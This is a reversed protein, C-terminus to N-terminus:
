KVGSIGAQTLAQVIGPPIQGGSKMAQEVVKALAGAGATTYGIMRPSSPLFSSANAGHAWREFQGAVVTKRLEELAAEAAKGLKEGPNLVEDVRGSRMARAVKLATQSPTKGVVENSLQDFAKAGDAYAKNAANWAGKQEAPLAEAMKNDLSQRMSRLARNLEGSTKALGQNGPVGYNIADDMQRRLNLAEGFDLKKKMKGMFDLITNYESSGPDLRPVKLPINNGGVSEPIKHGASELSAAVERMASKSDVAVAKGTSDAGFKAIEDQISKFQDGLAKKGAEIKSVVHAQIDSGVADGFQKAIAPNQFVTKIYDPHKGTWWGALDALLNGTFSLAPKAASLAGKVGEVVAPGGIAAGVEAPSSPAIISKAADLGAGAVAGAGRVIASGSEKVAGRAADALGGLQTNLPDTFPIREELGPENPPHAIPTGPPATQPNEPLPQGQWPQTPLVAATAKDLIGQPAPPMTSTSPVQSVAPQAGAITYGRDKLRQLLPERQDEPAESLMAKLKDRDIEPM